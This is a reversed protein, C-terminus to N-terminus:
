DKQAGVADEKDVGFILIKLWACMFKLLLKPWQYWKVSSYDLNEFFFVPWGWWKMRVVAYLKQNNKGVTRIDMYRPAKVM